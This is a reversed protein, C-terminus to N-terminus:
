EDGFSVDLARGVVIGQSDMPVYKLKAVAQKLPVYELKPPWIAVM